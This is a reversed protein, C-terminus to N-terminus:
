LTNLFWETDMDALTIRFSLKNPQYYCALKDVPPAPFYVPLIAWESYYALVPTLTHHNHAISYPKLGTLPNPPEVTASLGHNTNVSLCVSLWKECLLCGLM